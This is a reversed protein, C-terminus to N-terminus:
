YGADSKEYSLEVKQSDYEASVRVKGDAATVSSTVHSNVYRVPDEAELETLDELSLVHLEEIHVGTGTGTTLLIVAEERNDGNVDAIHVAPSYAPNDVNQWDFTRSLAGAKVTITDFSGKDLQTATVSVDGETITLELVRPEAEGITVEAVSKFGFVGILAMLVLVMKAM